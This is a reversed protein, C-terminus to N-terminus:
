NASTATLPVRIFLQCVANRELPATIPSAAADWASFLGPLHRLLAQSPDCFSIHRHSFLRPRCHLAADTTNSLPSPRDPNSQASKLWTTHSLSGCPLAKSSAFANVASIVGRVYGARCEWHRRRGPHRQWSSRTIVSSPTLTASVPSLAAAQSVNCATHHSALVPPQGLRM